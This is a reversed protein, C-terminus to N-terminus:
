SDYQNGEFAERLIKFAQKYRTNRSRLKSLEKRLEGCKNVCGNYDEVYKAKFNDILKIVDGYNKVECSFEEELIYLINKYDLMEMSSSSVVRGVIFGIILGGVLGTWFM